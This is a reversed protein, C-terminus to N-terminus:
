QAQPRAGATALGLSFINLVGRLLYGHTTAAAQSPAATATTPSIAIASLLLLGMAWVRIASLQSAGAAHRGNPRMSRKGPSMHKAIPRFRLWPGCASAVFLRTFSLRLRLGHSNRLVQRFGAVWRGTKPGNKEPSNRGPLRM